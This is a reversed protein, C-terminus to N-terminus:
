SLGGNSAPTATTQGASPTSRSRPARSRLLSALAFGAGALVACTTVPNARIVKVLQDGLADPSQADVRAAVDRVVGSVGDVASASMAYGDRRLQESGADMAAQVSELYRGSAGTLKGAAASAKEHIAAEAGSAVADASEGVKEKFDM